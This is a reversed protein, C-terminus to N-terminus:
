LQVNQPLGRTLIGHGAAQDEAQKQQRRQEVPSVGEEAGVAGM